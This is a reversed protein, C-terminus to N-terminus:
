VTVGLARAEAVLREIEDARSGSALEDLDGAISRLHGASVALSARTGNAMRRGSGRRREALWSARDALNAAASETMALQESFRM